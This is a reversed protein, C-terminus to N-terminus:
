DPDFFHFDTRGCHFGFPLRFIREENAEIEDAGIVASETACNVLSVREGDVRELRFQFPAVECDEVILSESRKPLASGIDVIKGFSIQQHQRPNYTSIALM